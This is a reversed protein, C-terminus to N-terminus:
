GGGQSVIRRYERLHRIAGLNNGAAEYLLALNYHCDAFAPQSQLALRYVAIAEDLRGLDELLVGLNFLLLEDGPCHEIGERYVAEAEALRGAEHLLRGLNTRAGSHEPDIDLARAYAEQAERGSAPELEWGRNFWADASGPADDPERALVELQGAALRVDLELLYQGSEAQWRKGGEQVVVRDGMARISLGSLPVSDPLQSRLARLSRAIRQAPLKAATLARAARLMLLDQFSFLYARREGRAPQVFGARVLGLIAARSMGLMRVVDRLPYQQQV